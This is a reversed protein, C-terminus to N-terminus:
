DGGRLNYRCCCVDGCKRSKVGIVGEMPLSESGDFITELNWPPIDDIGYRDIIEFGASKVVDEASMRKGEPVYVKSGDPSVFQLPSCNFVAAVSGSKSIRGLEGAIRPPDPIRDIVNNIVVLKAQGAKLPVCELNGQAFFIRENNDTREMAERVMRESIDIGISVGGFKRALMALNEGTAMAGEFIVGEPLYPDRIRGTVKEPLTYCGRYRELNYRAATAAQSVMAKGGEDLCRVMGTEFRFIEKIAELDSGCEESLRYALQTFRDLCMKANGELAYETIDAEIEPIERGRRDESFDFFYPIGGSIKYERGCSCALYGSAIKKGMEGAQFSGGKLELCGNCGPDTCSLYPLANELAKVGVM